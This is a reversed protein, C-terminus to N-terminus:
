LKNSLLFFFSFFFSVNIEESGPNKKNLMFSTIWVNGILLTWQKPRKKTEKKGGM